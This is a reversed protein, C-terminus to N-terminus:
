YPIFLDNIIKASKNDIVKMMAQRLALRSDKNDTKKFQELLIDYLLEGNKGDYMQAIAIASAIRLSESNGSLVEQLLPLALRNKPFGLMLVAIVKDEIAADSKITAFHRENSSQDQLIPAITKAMRVSKEFSIGAKHLSGEMRKFLAQSVPSSSKKNGFNIINM